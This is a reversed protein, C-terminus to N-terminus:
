SARHVSSPAHTSTPSVALYGLTLGLGGVGRAVWCDFTLSRTAAAPNLASKMTHSCCCSGQSCIVLLCGAAGALRGGPWLSNSIIGNICIHPLHPRPISPACSALRSLSSDCAPHLDEASISSHRGESKAVDGWTM